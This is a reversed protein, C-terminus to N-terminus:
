LHERSKASDSRTSVPPPPPADHSYFSRAVCGVAVTERSGYVYNRKVAKTTGNPGIGTMQLNDVNVIRQLKAVRNFFDLVQYYTGDLDVEFPVETYFERTLVPKPLLAAFKWAPSAPATRCSTSSSPAEKEDPVITKQVELQQRLGAIQAELERTKPEYQKLENKALRENLKSPRIMTPRCPGPLIRCAVTHLPPWAALCCLEKAM